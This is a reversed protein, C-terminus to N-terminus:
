FDARYLYIDAIKGDKGLIRLRVPFGDFPVRWEAAGEEERYPKGLMTYTKDWADGLFLGFCSGAYPPALRVQWVRDGFLFLSYGPAYEFVVDDQWPELGRAAYVKAPVGHTEFVKALTLGLETAPDDPLDAFAGAALVCAFFVAAVNRPSPVIRQIM